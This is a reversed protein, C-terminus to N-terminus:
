GDALGVVVGCRDPLPRQGLELRQRERVNPCRGLNAEVAGVRQHQGKGAVRRQREVGGALRNM